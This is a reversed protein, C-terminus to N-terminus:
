AKESAENLLLQRFTNKREQVTELNIWADLLGEGDQGITMSRLAALDPGMEIFQLWDQTLPDWVTQNKGCWLANAGVFELDLLDSVITVIRERRQAPTLPSVAPWSVVHQLLVDRVGIAPDLSANGVRIFGDNLHQEIGDYRSLWNLLTACWDTLGLQTLCRVIVFPAHAHDDACRGFYPFEDYVSNPESLEM